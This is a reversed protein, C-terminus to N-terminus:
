DHSNRYYCFIAVNSVPFTVQWNFRKALWSFTKPSYFCVHTKDRTYWWNAFQDSLTVMETMVALYGSPKLMKNLQTFVQLPDFVHEVVESATIFDYQKELLAQDSFYFPDYNEMKFGQEQIIESLVPVPGCGFDLGHASPPLLPILPTTLRELFIRYGEVGAENHHTDYRAKEDDASVRQTPDLFILGCGEPQDCLWYILEGRQVDQKTHLVSVPSACLLCHMHNIMAHLPIITRICITQM